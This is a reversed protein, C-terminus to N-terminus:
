VASIMNQHQLSVYYYILNRPLCKELKLFVYTIYLLFLQREIILSLFRLFWQELNKSDHSPLLCVFIYKTFHLLGILIYFFSVFVFFFFFFVLFHEPEM